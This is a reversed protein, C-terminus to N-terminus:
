RLILASALYLDRGSQGFRQRRARLSLGTASLGKPEGRFKTRFPASFANAQVEGNQLLIQFRHSVLARSAAAKWSSPLNILDDFGSQRYHSLALPCHIISPQIM